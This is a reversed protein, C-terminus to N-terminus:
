KEGSLKGPCPVCDATPHAHGSETVSAQGCTEVTRLFYSAKEYVNPDRSDEDESTELIKRGATKKPPNKKHGQVM